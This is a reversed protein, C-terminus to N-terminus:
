QTVGGLALQEKFNIVNFNLGQSLVGKSIFQPMLVNQCDNYVVRGSEVEPSLPLTDDEILSVTSTIIAAKSQFFTRIIFEDMLAFASEVLNLRDYESIILSTDMTGLEKSIAGMNYHNVMDELEEVTPIRLNKKIFSKYMNFIIVSNRKLLDNDYEFSRLVSNM